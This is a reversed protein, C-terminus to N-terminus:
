FYCKQFKWRYAPICVKSLNANRTTVTISTLMSGIMYSRESNLVVDDSLIQFQKQLKKGSYVERQRDILGRLYPHSVTKRLANCISDFNTRESQLGIARFKHLFVTVEDWPPLKTSVRLGSERDYNIKLSAPMGRQVFETCLLEDVYCTFAELREWDDDEFRGSLSIKEGSDKRELKLRYEPAM